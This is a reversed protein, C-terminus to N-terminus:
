RGLLYVAAAVVASTVLGAFLSRRSPEAPLRFLLQLVTGTAFCVAFAVFALVFARPM